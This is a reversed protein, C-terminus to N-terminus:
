VRFLSASILFGLASRAAMLADDGKVGNIEYIVDSIQGPDGTQKSKLKPPAPHM